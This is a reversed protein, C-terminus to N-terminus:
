PSCKAAQTECGLSAGGAPDTGCDGPPYNGLSPSPAAPAVGGTFLWSFIIVSDNLVLVGSDDADAAELCAPPGFGLFLFNLIVIGDTLGIMGDSNADGRVFGDGAPPDGCGSISVTVEGLSLVNAEDANGQGETGSLDPDVLREVRVVQGSIAEGGLDALTIELSTPGDPFVGLENEPNLLDSEYLIDGGPGDLIFVTIDRLRSGCCSTRNFITIGSIDYSQGYDVEWFPMEDTGLTHTFDDLNGNLALDPVFAGNTTSQTAIGQPFSGVECSPPFLAGNNVTITAGGAGLESAPILHSSTGADLDAVDNGNVQVRIRSNCGAPNTWSVMAGECERECAVDRVPECRTSGACPNTVVEVEALQLVASEDANGMGGSGSLDDDPMRTVRIVRGEVASGEIENLDITLSDPGLPFAGLENEPNLLESEFVLDGDVDDFIEVVIDRLRSGCCNRRNHLVIAEIEFTDQLDLEWWAPSQGSATHTHNNLDGDIAFNAPFQSNGFESSQTAVGRSAINGAAPVICTSAGLGGNDVGVVGGGTGIDDETITYSTEDAGITDIVVGDVLIDIEEIGGCQEPQEPNEWTLDVKLSGDEACSYTCPGLIVSACIECDEPPAAGAPDTGLYFWDPNDEGITTFSATDILRVSGGWGGAREWVGIIIRHVGPEVDITVTDQCEGATGRGRCVNNNIVVDCNWLVQVADDSRVCLDVQTPGDGDYEVYTCLFTVHDDLNVGVVADTGMDQDGDFVSGDDWLRWVPFGDADVPALEHYNNSAAIDPDYEVSDGEEPYQFQLFSPAIHNQLIDENTQCAFDNAFPGLALFQEGTIEGSIADIAQADVHTTLGIGALVACISLTSRVTCPRRM